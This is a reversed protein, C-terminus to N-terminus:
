IWLVILWIFSGILTILAIMQIHWNLLMSFMRFTIFALVALIISSWWVNIILNFIMGLLVIFLGIGVSNSSGFLIPSIIWKANLRNLYDQAQPEDLNNYVRKAKESSKDLQEFAYIKYYAVVFGSACFIACAIFYNLDIM